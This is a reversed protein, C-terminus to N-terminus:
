FNLITKKIFKKLEANNSDFELIDHARLMKCYNREDIALMKDIKKKILKKEEGQYFFVDENKKFFHWTFKKDNSIFLVKQKKALLHYGLESYTCISMDCIDSLNYSSMTPFHSFKIDKFFNLEQDLFSRRVGKDKRTSTLAIALKKNELLCYSNIIKAIKLFSSNFKKIKYNLANTRTSLPRYNSILMIDFKINKKQQKIENNRVSGHVFFNSNHVEKLIKKSRQDYVFYYNPSYKNIIKKKNQIYELSDNYSNGTTITQKLLKDRDFTYSGEYCISKINPFIKIIKFIKLDMDSGIALKPSFDKIIYFFYLSRFNKNKCIGFFLSKLLYWLNIENDPYVASKIGSFNLEKFRDRFVLLDVKSLKKITIKKKFFSFM